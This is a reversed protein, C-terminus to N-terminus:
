EPFRSGRREKFIMQLGLAVLVVPFIYDWASGSIVGSKELIMLVGLMTFLAGVFM